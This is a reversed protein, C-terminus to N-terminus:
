IILEMSHTDFIDVDDILRVRAKRFNMKLFFFFLFISCMRVTYIIIRTHITFSCM